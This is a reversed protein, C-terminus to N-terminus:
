LRTCTTLSPLVQFMRIWSTELQWLEEYDHIPFFATLAGENKMTAFSLEAGGDQEKTAIIDMMLKIRDVGRFIRTEKTGDAKTESGQELSDNDYIDQFDPNVSYPGYIFETPLYRLFRVLSLIPWVWLLVCM